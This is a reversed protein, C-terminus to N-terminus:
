AASIHQGLRPFNVAVRGGTPTERSVSIRSSTLRLLAGEVPDDLSTDATRIRVKQGASFENGPAVDETLDPVAADAIALAEDASAEEPHGHGVAAIRGYWRTLYPLAKIAGATSSNPVRGLIFWLNIYLALDGHGAADGGIFERGDSLLQDIWTATAMVQSSQHPVTSRFQPIDLGFRAKRDDIFAEPLANAPLNGFTVGIHAIFQAAGAWSAIMRHASGLPLPYFSPQPALRELADLIAATDCYIDAGIQLVPTRAYGGTLAVLDAKPLVNPILVSRYRMDKFGLAIRGLEAFPSPLTHHLVVTM